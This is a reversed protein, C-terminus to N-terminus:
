VPKTFFYMLFFRKKGKKGEEENKGPIHVYIAAARAGMKHHHPSRSSPLWLSSSLVSSPLLRPGSPVQQAAAPGANSVM